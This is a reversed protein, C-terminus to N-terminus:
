EKGHKSSIKLKKLKSRLTNRNIGLIKSTKIQNGKCFELAKLILPREFEDMFKDHLAIKQDNSDLSDFFNKLFSELYSRLNEKETKNNSIEKTELPEFKDNDIYDKLITSSIITDSTLM